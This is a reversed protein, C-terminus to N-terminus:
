LSKFLNLIKRIKFKFNNHRGTSNFLKKFIMFHYAIDSVDKKKLKRKASMFITKIAKKQYYEGPKDKGVKKTRNKTKKTKLTKIFLMYNALKFNLRVTKKFPPNLGNLCILIKSKKEM